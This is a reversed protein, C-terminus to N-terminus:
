FQTYVYVAGDVPDVFRHLGEGTRMYVCDAVVRLTNDAALEPLQVRNGDFVEGPDLARGNLTVEVVSDATLDLYSDAGPQSCSFTVDVTSRFTTSGTTLDLDVAYRDVSLLRARRRAEDRTINNVSM